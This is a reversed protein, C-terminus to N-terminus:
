PKGIHQNELFDLTHFSQGGWFSEFLLKVGGGGGGQLSLKFIKGGEGEGM